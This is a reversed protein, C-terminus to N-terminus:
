NNTDTNGQFVYRLSLCLSSSYQGRNLIFVANGQHSRIPAVSQIGRLNVWFSKGINYNIGLLAAIEVKKFERGPVNYDGQETRELHSILYGFSPGLEFAFRKGFPMFKYLLPLEIYNLGLLYKTPDDDKPAKYAGKQIFNIEFQFWNKTNIAYNGFVGAFAGPKNFGSLNDGSVQNVSFGLSVGGGFRSQASLITVCFLFGLAAVFRKM